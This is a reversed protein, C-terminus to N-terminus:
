QSEYSLINAGPAIPTSYDTSPENGTNCHKVGNSVVCQGPNLVIKSDQAPAPLLPHELRWAQEREERERKKLELAHKHRAEENLGEQRKLELARRHEAETAKEKTEFEAQRDLRAERRLLLERQLELSKPDSGKELVNAVVQAGAEGFAGKVLAWVLASFLGGGGLTAAILLIVFKNGSRGVQVENEYIRM